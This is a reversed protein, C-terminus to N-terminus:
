TIHDLIHLIILMQIMFAGLHILIFTCLLQITNCQYHHGLLLIHQQHMFGKEEGIKIELNASRFHDQHSLMALKILVRQKSKSTINLWFNSLLLRRGKVRKNIMVKVELVKLNTCVQNVMARSAEPRLLREETQLRRTVVRCSLNPTHPDSIIINKGKGKDTSCPRVLAKKDRPGLTDVHVSQRDIEMEQFRLRGENVTSQIQHRFVNCDNTNHLFSDHWKCYICRKLISHSLKINGNKLLEDFIKDCKAINFTFKVKWKQISHM